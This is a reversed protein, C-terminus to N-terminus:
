EIIGGGIVIDEDYLVVAQGKAIARQAEDFLVHIHSDDTQTVTAWQERANYRIRAKCRIPESLSEYAILNVQRATLEKSFLEDNNGLVVTNDEANKSLVFAPKGLAIGLGKRQGVTYHIIGQHEGLVTGDKSIFSGHPLTYDLRGKIFSAYDGDPIFCIDQSDHKRANVFNMKEALTRAHSKTMDGLPFLTHSLQHQTLTYLVYSQDKSEDSGKKLLYRGRKEDYEVRAYHGTAIYDFGKEIASDLLKGFKLKKNCEICPNPTEGKLYSSIFSSIVSKEFDDYYYFIEFPVGLAEAVKQADLADSSIKDKDEDYFRCNVGTVDYGEAKLVYASVASDVGGSMGVLVKKAM